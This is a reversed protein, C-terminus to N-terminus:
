GLDKVGLLKRMEAFKLKPLAKTLIDARQEESRVYAVSIEGREVCDRIFHFRMNSHKSRGHFVPNKMLDASKNDVYLRVPRLDVRTLEHSLGALWIGQCAAGGTAAMFEAEWSSAIGVVYMGVVYMLDPRTHTLYRLCGIVRRYDTSDVPTGFEDKGVHLKAEMPYKTPNCEIM